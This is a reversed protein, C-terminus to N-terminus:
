PKWTIKISNFNGRLEDARGKLESLMRIVVPKFEVGLLNCTEMKNLEKEATKNKEKMQAMNGPRRM